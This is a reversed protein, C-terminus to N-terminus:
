IKNQCIHTFTLLQCEQINFANFVAMGLATVNILNTLACLTWFPFMAWIRNFVGWRNKCTEWISPTPDPDPWLHVSAKLRWGALDQAVSPSPLFLGQDRGQRQWSQDPVAYSSTPRQTGKRRM